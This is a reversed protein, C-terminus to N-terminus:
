SGEKMAGVDYADITTVSYDIRIKGKEMKM